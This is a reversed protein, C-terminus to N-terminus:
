TNSEIDSLNTACGTAEKAVSFSRFYINGDAAVFETKRMNVWCVQYSLPCKAALYLQLGIIRGSDRGATM